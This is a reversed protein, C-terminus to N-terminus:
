FCHPKEVCASSSYIIEQHQQHHCQNHQYTYGCGGQCHYKEYNCPTGCPYQNYNNQNGCPGGQNQGQGQDQSQQGQQYQDTCQVHVGPYNPYQQNGTFQTYVQATWKWSINFYCQPTTFRGAWSVVTNGPLGASGVHYAYASLFVNGHFNSPVVTVWESTANDFTTSAEKATTSFEVEGKPAHQVFTTGNPETFTLTEDVFSITLNSTPPPGQISLESSFWVTDGSQINVNQFEASISSRFQPSTGSASALGGPFVAVLAMGVIAIGVLAAKGYKMRGGPGKLFEELVEV